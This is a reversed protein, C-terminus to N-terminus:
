VAQWLNSRIEERADDLADIRALRDIPLRYSYLCKESNFVKVIGHFTGDTNHGFSARMKTEM